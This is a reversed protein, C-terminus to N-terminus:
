SPVANSRLPSTVRILYATYGNPEGTPAILQTPSPAYQIRGGRSIIDVQRRQTIICRANRSRRELGTDEISESYHLAHMARWTTAAAAPTIAM